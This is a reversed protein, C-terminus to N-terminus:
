QGRAFLRALLNLLLTLAASLLLCTTIPLYITTGDVNLRLDGPLRGLLPVRPGLALLLGVGVLLLGLIIMFRGFVSM